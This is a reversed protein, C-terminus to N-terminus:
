YAQAFVVRQKSPRATYICVGPEQPTDLPICRITAKTEAQIKK